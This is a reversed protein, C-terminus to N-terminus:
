IQNVSMITTLSINLWGIQINFNTFHINLLGEQIYLNDQGFLYNRIKM